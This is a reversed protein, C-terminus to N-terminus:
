CLLRCCPEYKQDSRQIAFHKLHASLFSLGSLLQLLFVFPFEPFVLVAKLLPPSFFSFDTLVRPLVSVIIIFSRKPGIAMACSKNKAPIKAIIFTHALSALPM